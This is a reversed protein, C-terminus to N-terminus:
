GVAKAIAEILLRAPFPKRLLAICGTEHAERQIADDDVATMFIVSLNCGSGAMRRRLEIGSIGGLHIDLVVCNAERAVSRDLFAEASNFVETDYGSVNLLRAVSKLMAPDDDVVAVLPRSMPM